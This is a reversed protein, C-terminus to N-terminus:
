LLVCGGADIRDLHAQLHPAWPYTVPALWARYAARQEAMREAIREALTRGDDSDYDRGEESETEDPDEPQHHFSAMVRSSSSFASSESQEEREDQMTTRMCSVPFQNHREPPAEWGSSDGQDYDYSHLSNGESRTINARYTFTNEQNYEDDQDEFEESAEYQVSTNSLSPPIRTDERPESAYAATTYAVGGYSDHGGLIAYDAFEPHSAM